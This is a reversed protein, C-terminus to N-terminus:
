IASGIQAAHEADHEWQVRVCSPFSWDEGHFRRPKTFEEEPLSELWRKWVERADVMEQLVGTVNQDRRATVSTANRADTVEDTLPEPPRGHLMRQMQELEWRDWYAIHALVDKVTWDDSVRVRAIGGEGLRELTHILRSRELDLRALNEALSSEMEPFM